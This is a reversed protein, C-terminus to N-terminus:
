RLRNVLVTTEHKTDNPAQSFDASTSVVKTDGQAEIGAVFASFNDLAEASVIHTTLGVEIVPVEWGEHTPTNPEGEM